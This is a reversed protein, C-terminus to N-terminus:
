VMLRAVWQQASQRTLAETLLPNALEFISLPVAQPTSYDVDDRGEIADAWDEVDSTALEGALFRYLVATIHHPALMVLVESSDWGFGRLDNLIEALPRSLTVLDSLVSTRDRQM